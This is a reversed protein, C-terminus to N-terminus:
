PMANEPSPDSSHYGEHLFSSARIQMANDPEAHSQSKEKTTKGKTAHFLHLVHHITRLRAFPRLHATIGM